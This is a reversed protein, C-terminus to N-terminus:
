FDFNSFISFEFIQSEFIGCVVDVVFGCVTQQVVIVEVCLFCFVIFYEHRLVVLPSSKSPSLSLPHARLPASAVDVDVGVSCTNNTTVLQNLISSLFFSSLASVM